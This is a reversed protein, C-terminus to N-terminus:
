EHLAETKIKGTLPNINIKSKHELYTVIIDGGSSGGEPYFTIAYVAKKNEDDDKTAKSNDWQLTVGQRSTWRGPTATAKSASKGTQLVAVKQKGEIVAARRAHKLVAMAGRVQSNLITAQGSGINPIVLAVMIGLIVMVVLLEILTFGTEPKSIRKPSMLSTTCIPQSIRLKGIFWMLMKM